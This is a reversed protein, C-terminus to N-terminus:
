PLKYLSLTVINQGWKVKKESFWGIQTRSQCASTQKFKAEMKGELVSNEWCQKRHTLIPAALDNKPHKQGKQSEYRAWIEQGLVLLQSKGHQIWFHLGNRM